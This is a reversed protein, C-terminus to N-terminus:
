VFKRVCDYTLPLNRKLLYYAIPIVAMNSTLNYRSYGMNAVLEVAARLAGAVKEWQTEIAHMTDRDFNDVKFAINKIDCLVLCAKLVFDQDFNFGEPIRNLEDVLDKIEKKADITAWQATAISLLLDSYSLVTGGSNVRVFINLVRDMQFDRDEYYNITPNKHIVSHLKFLTKNAFKAVEPQHRMLDQTILFDNVEHEEKLNLIHKVRFWYHAENQVAAEDPTMFLFDYQLDSDTAPSLLNLYLEKRPFADDNEWRKRPLKRAYSGKLGIYLATLRQQGDLIATVSTRGSLDFADNVFRNDREHYDRIFDYFKYRQVNEGEVQWMLFSGIPYERMLSDFLAVIQDEKWVFDRQIAPMLYAKFEIKEISERITIPTQFPM